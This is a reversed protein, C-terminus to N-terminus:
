PAKWSAFASFAIPMKSLAKPYMDKRDWRPGIVKVVRLFTESRRDLADV